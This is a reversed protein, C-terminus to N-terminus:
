GVKLIAGISDSVGCRLGADELASIVLAGTCSMKARGASKTSADRFFGDRRNVVRETSITENRHERNSSSSGCLTFWLETVWGRSSPTFARNTDVRSAEALTRM